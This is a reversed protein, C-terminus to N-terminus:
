LLKKNTFCDIKNIKEESTVLLMEKFYEMALEKGKDKGYKYSRKVLLIVLYSTWLSMLLTSIILQILNFGVELPNTKISGTLTLLIFFLSAFIGASLLFGKIPYNKLNEKKM